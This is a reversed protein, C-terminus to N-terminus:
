GIIDSTNVIYNGLLYDASDYIINKIKKDVKQINRGENEDDSLLDNSILHSFNHKKLYRNKNYINGFNKEQIIGQFRNTFGQINIKNSICKLNM